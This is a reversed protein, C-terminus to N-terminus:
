RLCSIERVAEMQGRVAKIKSQIRLLNETRIVHGRGLKNPQCVVPYDQNCMILLISVKFTSITLLNYSPNHLLLTVKGRTHMRQAYKQCRAWEVKTPIIKCSKHILCNLLPFTSAMLLSVLTRDEGKCIDEPLSMFLLLTTHRLHISSPCRPYVLAFFRVWNISSVDQIFGVLTGLTAWGANTPSQYARLIASDVIDGLAIEEVLSDGLDPSTVLKNSGL